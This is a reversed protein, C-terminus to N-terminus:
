KSDTRTLKFAFSVAFAAFTKSLTNFIWRCDSNSQAAISRLRHMQSYQHMRFSVAFIPL